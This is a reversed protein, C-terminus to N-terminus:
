GDVQQLTQACRDFLKNSIRKRMFFLFPVQRTVELLLSVRAIAVRLRTAQDIQYIIEVGLYNMYEFTKLEKVDEARIQYRAGIGEIMLRNHEDDFLILVHDDGDISIKAKSRDADSLEATMTEAMGSRGVLDHARDGILWRLIFRDLKVSVLMTTIGLVTCCGALTLLVTDAGGPQDRDVKTTLLAGAGILAFGLVFAILMVRGPTWGVVPKKGVPLCFSGPFGFPDQRHADVVTRISAQIAPFRFDADWTKAAM